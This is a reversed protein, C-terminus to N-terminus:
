RDEGKPHSVGFRSGRRRERVGLRSGKRFGKVSRTLDAKFFKKNCDPSSVEPQQM